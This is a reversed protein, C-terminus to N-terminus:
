QPQGFDISPKMARVNKADRGPTPYITAFGASGMRVKAAIISQPRISLRLRQALEDPAPKIDANEVWIITPCDTSMSWDAPSIIRFGFQRALTSYMLATVEPEGPFPPVSKASAAWHPVAVIQTTPCEKSAVAAFRALEYAHPTHMRKLALTGNAAIINLLVLWALWKKKLLIPDALVAVATVIPPSLFYMYRRVVMPKFENTAIASVIAVAVAVLATRAFAWRWNDIEGRFFYIGVIAAICPAVTLAAVFSIARCADGISAVLWFNEIIGRTQSWQILGTVIAIGGGLLSSGFLWLAWRRKGGSWHRLIFVGLIIGAFLGNIFHTNLSLLISVSILLSPLLDKSHRDGSGSEIFVLGAFTAFWGALFTFYPRHDAFTDLFITSGAIFIALTAPWAERVRLAFCWVVLGVFALPLLNILRKLEIRDGTIPEFLWAMFYFFPPHVDALWRERYLQALPLEQSAQYVSWFEDLWPGRLSAALLMFAVCIALGVALMGKPWPTVAAPDDTITAGTM